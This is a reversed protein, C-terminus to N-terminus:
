SVGGPGKSRVIETHNKVMSRLVEDRPGFARRQGEELVLLLDCEQIAAPRHAIVIVSGGAEKLRNYLRLLALEDTVPDAPDLVYSQGPHDAPVVAPLAPDLAHAGVRGGWIRALHTKGCGPPGHVVLVPAPWDPWRAIWALAERNCPAPLFDEEGSAARPEFGLPLQEAM